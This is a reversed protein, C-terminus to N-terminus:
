KKKFVFFAAGAIVLAALIGFITKNSGEEAPTDDVKVDKTESEVKALEKDVDKDVTEDISTEMEPTPVEEKPEEVVKKKPRPAPKTQKKPSTGAPESVKEYDADTVVVEEVEVSVEVTKEEPTTVETATQTPTETKVSEEKNSCSILVGTIALILMIKKM